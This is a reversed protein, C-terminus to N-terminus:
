GRLRCAEDAAKFGLSSTGLRCFLEDLVGFDELFGPSEGNEKLGNGGPYRLDDHLARFDGDKANARPGGAMPLEEDHVVDEAEKLGEGRFEHFAVRIHRADHALGKQVVHALHFFPFERPGSCV